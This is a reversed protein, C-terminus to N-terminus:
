TLPRRAVRARVIDRGRQRAAAAVQAAQEQEATVREMAEPDDPRHGANRRHEEFLAERLKAQDGEVTAILDGDDLEVDLDHEVVIRELEEMAQASILEGPQVLGLYQMVERRTIWNPM